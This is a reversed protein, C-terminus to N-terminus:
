RLENLARGDWELTCKALVICAGLDVKREGVARGPDDPKGDDNGDLYVRFTPQDGPNANVFIAEAGSPIPHSERQTDMIVVIATASRNRVVHSSACLATQVCGAWFFVFATLRLLLDANRTQM